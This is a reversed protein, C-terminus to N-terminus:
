KRDWKVCALILFNKKPPPRSDDTTLFFFCSGPVWNALTFYQFNLFAVTRSILGTMKDHSISNLYLDFTGWERGGERESGRGVATSCIRGQSIKKCSFFNTLNNAFTKREKKKNEKCYNSTASCFLASCLLASCLLAFYAFRSNM